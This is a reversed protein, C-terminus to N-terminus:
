FTRIDMIVTLFQGFLSGPGWIHGWGDPILFHPVNYATKKTFSSCDFKLSEDTLIERWPKLKKCHMCNASDRQFNIEYVNNMVENM